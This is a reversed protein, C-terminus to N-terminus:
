RLKEEGNTANLIELDLLADSYLEKVTIHFQQTTATKM